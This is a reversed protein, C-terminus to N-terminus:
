RTVGREILGIRGADSMPLWVRGRVEDLAMQRVTSAPTPLAWTRREGSAPDLAVVANTRKESFWVLGDRAVAIAYPETAGALSAFSETRQTRPDYRVVRHRGFDTLWVGGEADVAIRRSQGSRRMRLEQVRRVSDPLSALFRAAGAPLDGSLEIVVATDSGAMVRLLLWGPQGGIWVSGDPGSAIGYPAFGEPAPYV